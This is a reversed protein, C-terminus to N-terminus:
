VINKIFQKAKLILQRDNDYSLLNHADNIEVWKIKSVEGEGPSTDFTLAKGVFYVVDKKVDKKPTYTIIERFGDEIDIEIDTEEKVERLATQTETEGIEVHGKPFSWRGGCINKILLIELNGHHKRYIIAGCSKEFLM